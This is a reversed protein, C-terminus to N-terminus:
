FSPSRNGRCGASGHAAFRQRCGPIAPLRPGPNRFAVPLTLPQGPKLVNLFYYDYVFQYGDFISIYITHLGTDALSPLWQIAGHRDVTTELPGTVKDFSLSDNDPDFAVITDRYLTGAYICSTRPYRQIIPLNNRFIVAAARGVNGKKDTAKVAVLNGITTHQLPITDYYWPGGGSLMKGNVSLTDIPSVDDVAEVALAASAASTYLGQAPSGNAEIDLIRPSSTDPSTSSYFLMVDKEDLTVGSENDVAVIRVPNPGLNLSVSWQWLTSSDAIRWAHPNESGDVYLLVSCNLASASNNIIAGSIVYPSVAVISTDSRPSVVSISVKPSPPIASSFVLWYTKRAATGNVFRDLAFINFALTSSASYPYTKSFLKYYVSGSHGDFPGGNVSASDVGLGLNDTIRVRLNFVSDGTFITDNRILGNNVCLIAPPVTDRVSFFFSDVPSLFKGDWVWLSGTGFMTAVPFIVKVVSLVVACCVTVACAEVTM